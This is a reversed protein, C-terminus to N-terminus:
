GHALARRVPTILALGQDPALVLGQYGASVIRDVLAIQAEVDDERTPANWYISVGVKDAAVVSGTHVPEWQMTGDTQPIVAIRTQQRSGCSTTWLVLACILAARKHCPGTRGSALLQQSSKDM